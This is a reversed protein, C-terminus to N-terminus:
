QLKLAETKAQYADGAIQKMQKELEAVKQPNTTALNTRQGPDTQLNYLQPQQSLGTEINVEKNLPRGPYAPIFVWEGSRFALRGSAELVLNKRGTESEGLLAGLLNESDTTKADSGVLAALSSLLDLQCVLADSVGKQIRGPRVHGPRVRGPWSVIFPVRTGAEFLSYKGGRLSGWPTHSGNKEVAEDYYGDNLVPGNDSSFIILTNALLGDAELKKRIEGVCWDAELIADGRPGLGSKGAFTAGPVRPVHPEHLAYYLFFPDGSKKAQHADIFAKAKDLFVEAMTEDMWLASKGGKMYGIRPIGNHISQNHGHHWKMKTMLEPNTLATPQGEFNEKYSVYLPDNAQLGAVKRNEVYVTPVRDGTAAMIYSEDFGIDNPTRAIAKNWDVSGSGLGLHWKGVVGTEYGQKKLMSALTTATTDILLPADGPLIKANKNRWPYVGTLLAFRSPTCTASTAYGNTFRIGSAALEDINPTKLTGQGYASVDGYGLDDAYIILINPKSATDTQQKTACGTTTLLLFLLVRNLM